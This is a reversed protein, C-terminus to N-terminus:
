FAIPKLDNESANKIAENRRRKMCRERFKPEVKMASAVETAAIKASTFGTERYKRLFKNLCGKIQKFAVYLQMEKSDLTKSVVFLVDYWVVM